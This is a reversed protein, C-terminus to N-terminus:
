RLSARYPRRLGMYSYYLDEKIAYLARLAFGRDAIREVASLFAMRDVRNAASAVFAGSLAGFGSQQDRNAEEFFSLTPVRAFFSLAPLDELYKNHVEIVQRDVEQLRVLSRIERHVDQVAKWAIVGGGRVVGDTRDEYEKKPPATTRGTSGGGGSTGSPPRRTQLYSNRTSLGYKLMYGGEDLFERRSSGGGSSNNNGGSRQALDYISLGTDGGPYTSNSVPYPLTRPPPPPGETPGCNYADCGHDLGLPDTYRYPNNGAYAYVARSAIGLPDTQLFAGTAPDYHRFGMRILGSNAEGIMGAFGREVAATGTEARVEGFTEYRRTHTSGDSQTVHAINASGDRMLAHLTTGSVEGLVAGSPGGRVTRIKQGYRNELGSGYYFSTGVPDDRRYLSGTADYTLDMMFGDSRSMTMLRGNGNYAYSSTVGTATNVHATRRGVPDYGFSELQLLPNATDVIANLQGAADRQYTRSQGARNVHLKRNGVRDYGLTESEGNPYDTKTVRGLADYEIATAGEATTITWPQGVLDYASYQTTEILGAAGTVTVQDIYGKATYSVARNIGSPASERTPRGAADYEFHWIGAVPDGVSTPLGREDYLYSTVIGGPFGVTGDDPAISQIM